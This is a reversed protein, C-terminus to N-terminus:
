PLSLSELVTETMTAPSTEMGLIRATHSTTISERRLVDSGSGIEDVVGRRRWGGGRGLRGGTSGSRGWRGWGGLWHDGLADQIAIADLEVILVSEHEVHAILARGSSKLAVLQISSVVENERRIVNRGEPTTEIRMRIYTTM